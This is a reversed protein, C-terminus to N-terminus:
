CCALRCVGCLPCACWSSRRPRCPACRQWAPWRWWFEAAPWQRAQWVSLISILAVRHLGPLRATLVRCSKNHGGWAYNLNTVCLVALAACTAAKLGALRLMACCPCAPTPLSLCAMCLCGSETVYDRATSPAAIRPLSQAALLSATTGTSSASPSRHLQAAYFNSSLCLHQFGARFGWGLMHVIFPYFTFTIHVTTM